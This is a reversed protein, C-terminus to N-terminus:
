FNNNDYKRALDEATGASQDLPTNLINQAAQMQQLKKERRKTFFNILIILALLIIVALVIIWTHSKEVKMIREGAASFAKSFYEDDEYDSYYYHDIYDLLIERAEEDMVTKASTGVICFSVYESFDYECFVLLLHGEDNFLSDYLRNGFEEQVTQSNVESYSNVGDLNDCIYLYPQVGTKSYFDKMGEELTYSSSIWGLTDEYYYDTENVLDSELKTREVTSKTIDSNRNVNALGLAVIVIFILIGIFITRLMRM